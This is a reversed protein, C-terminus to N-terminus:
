RGINPRLGGIYYNHILEVNFGWRSLYNQLYIGNLKPTAAWNMRGAGEIPLVLQGNNSIFNQVTQIDAIRGDITLKLPNTASFTESGIDAIIIADLTM